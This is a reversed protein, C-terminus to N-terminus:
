PWGGPHARISACAWRSSPSPPKPVAPSCMSGVVTTACSRLGRTSYSRVSSSGMWPRSIPVAAQISPEIQSAVANAVTDQLAFVDELTGDFRQTWIPTRAAEDLLEVASRVRDGAKRVSGSLVYRVGLERAILAPSRTDGRYTLSAAHAIVFLSQFASLATVIEVLMGEAFYDQDTAGTMDTFPLVAISPKDSLGAAAPEASVPLVMPAVGHLHFAEVAEAMKDLQLAGRPVLREAVPGRITQRVAGSVLGSGAESRAMLRAAVNVGHGLLDGSPQVMVDGLHVGVRVRPECTEALAFAAEV